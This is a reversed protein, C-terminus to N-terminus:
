QGLLVAACENLTVDVSVHLAVGFVFLVRTEDLCTSGRIVKCRRTGFRFRDKAVLVTNLLDPVLCDPPLIVVRLLAWFTM